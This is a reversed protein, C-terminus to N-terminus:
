RFNPFPPIVKGEATFVDRSLAETVSMYIYNKAHCLNFIYNLVM